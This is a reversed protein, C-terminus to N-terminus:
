RSALVDLVCELADRDVPGRLRVTHEGAVVEITGGDSADALEVFALEKNPTGGDRDLRKRWYYFSKDSVGEAKCFAIITGDHSAFRRMRRRWEQELETDTDRAM